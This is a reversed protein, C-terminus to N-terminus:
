HDAQYHKSQLVAMFYSLTIDYDDQDDARGRLLTGSVHSGRSPKMCMSDSRHHGSLCLM